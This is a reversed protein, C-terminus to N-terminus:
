RLPSRQPPQAGQGRAHLPVWGDNLAQQRGNAARPPTAFDASAREPSRRPAPAQLSQGRPPIEASAARSPLLFPDQVAPRGTARPTPRSWGEADRPVQSAPQPSQGRVVVNQDPLGAPRSSNLVLLQGEPTSLDPSGALVWKAWQQELSSISEVGFHKELATDWGGRLADGLFRLYGPKSGHQVLFDALSYGQAYLNLTQQMDHPYERISLLQKLPIRGSTKLIRELRERQIRQESAHEALTAAGEDAWRPLPQRFYSALITHSVEHPVVSDLVRELSGQVNMQWGSVEGRDFAFTTAGGAGIQGVRVHITCPRYWNPLDHGLWEVALVQRYHEAVQAVQEAIEQTSANVVFNATRVQGAADAISPTSFLLLCFVSLAYRPADMSKGKESEMGAVFTPRDSRGPKATLGFKIRDHLLGPDM